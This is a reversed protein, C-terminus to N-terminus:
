KFYESYIYETVTDKLHEGSKDNTGKDTASDNGENEDEEQKLHEHKTFLQGNQLTINCKWLGFDELQIKIIVM